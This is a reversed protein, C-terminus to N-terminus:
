SKSARTSPGSNAFRHPSLLSASSGSFPMSVSSPTSTAHVYVSRTGRPRPRADPLSYPAPTAAGLCGPDKFLSQTVADFRHHIIWSWRHDLGSCEIHNAMRTVTSAALPLLMPLTRWFCAVLVSGLSVSLLSTLGRGHVLVSSRRLHM